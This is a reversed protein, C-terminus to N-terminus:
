TSGLAHARMPVNDRTVNGVGHQVVHPLVGAGAPRVLTEVRAPAASSRSTEASLKSATMQRRPRISKTSGAFASTAIRRAKFGLPVTALTTKVVGAAFGNIAFGM